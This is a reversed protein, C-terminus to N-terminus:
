KASRKPIPRVDAGWARLERVVADVLDDLHAECEPTLELGPESTGPEMGWLVIRQPSSGASGRLVILEHLHVDQPLLHMTEAWAVEEGELRILSGPRQGRHVADIILVEEVGELFSLLSLGLAGADIAEVDDPLIYRETLRRLARVGLGEDQLLVNGLGMVLIPAM